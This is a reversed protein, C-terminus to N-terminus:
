QRIKEFKVALPYWLPTLLHKKYADTASVPSSEVSSLYFNTFHRFTEHVTKTTLQHDMFCKKSHYEFTAIFAAGKFFDNIAKIMDERLRSDMHEFVSISTIHTIGPYKEFTNKLASFSAEEKIAVINDYISGANPDLVIVKKLCDKLLMSFFGIGTKPSGGGIDLVISDAAPDLFEIAKFYEWFRQSVKGGGYISGDWESPFEKTAFRKWLEIKLKETLANM